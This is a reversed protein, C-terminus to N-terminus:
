MNPPSVIWILEAIKQSSNILKRSKGTNLYFCDGMKLRYTKNDYDIEIEGNFVFMFEQGPHNTMLDDTNANPKFAVLYTEMLKGSDHYSLLYLSAGSENEKVFKKEDYSIYPNRSLLEHEGILEGVTSHLNEAITKITALSPSTKANEIQSLASSSIGVMKALDNLQLHLQERRKKIREGLRNM